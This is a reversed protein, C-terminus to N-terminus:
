LTTLPHSRFTQIADSRDADSPASGHQALSAIRDNIIAQLVRTMTVVNLDPRLLRHHVMGLSFTMITDALETSEDSESKQPALLAIANLLHVRLEDHLTTFIAAIRPNRSSEAVIEAFMRDGEITEGPLVFHQLWALVKATDGAEIASKLTATDMFRQCDERVLASVIEEKSSFDRYIQGVAIGSQQAIQAMGTAHFGNDIFLKRATEVLKQRRKDARSMLDPCCSDAIKM